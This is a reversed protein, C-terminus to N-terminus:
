AATHSAECQAYQPTNLEREDCFVAAAFLRRFHIQSALLEAMVEALSTGSPSRLFSTLARM